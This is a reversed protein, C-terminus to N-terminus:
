RPTVDDSLSPWIRIMLGAEVGDTRGRKGNSDVDFGGVQLKVDMRVVNLCCRKDRIRALVVVLAHEQTKYNKM